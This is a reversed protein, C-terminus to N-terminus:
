SFTILFVEFKPLKPKLSLRTSIHPIVFVYVSPRVHMVFIFPAKAVLRLHWSLTLKVKLSSM